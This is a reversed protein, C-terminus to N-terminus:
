ASGTPGIANQDAPRAPLSASLTSSEAERVPLKELKVSAAQQKAREADVKASADKKEPSPLAAGGAKGDGPKKSTQKDNATTVPPKTKPKTLKAIEDGISEHFIAGSAVLAGVGLGIWSFNTVAATVLGIVTGVIPLSKKAYYIFLDEPPLKPGDAAKVTKHAKQYWPMEEFKRKAEQTRLEAQQLAEIFKDERMGSNVVVPASDPKGDETIPKRSHSASAILRVMVGGRTGFKGEEDIEFQTTGPKSVPEMLYTKYGEYKKGNHKIDDELFPLAMAEHNELRNDHSIYYNAGYGVGIAAGTGAALTGWAKAVNKKSWEEAAHVPAYGALRRLGTWGLKIPGFILGAVM